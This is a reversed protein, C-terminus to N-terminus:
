MGSQIEPLVPWPLDPRYCKKRWNHTSPQCWKLGHHVTLQATLSIQINVTGFTCDFFKSHNPHKFPGFKFESNM